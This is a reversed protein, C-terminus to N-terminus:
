CSAAASQLLTAEPTTARAAHLFTEFGVRPAMGALFGGLADLATRTFGKPHLLASFRMDATGAHQRLWTEAAALLLPAPLPLILPTWGRLGYDLRRALRGALSGQQASEDAADRSHGEGGLLTGKPQRFFRAQALGAAPGLNAAAVPIELLGAHAPALVGTEPAVRWNALRPAATFDVAQRGTSKRMGPVVSSDIGIGARALGKLIAGDHPQIAYGGARFAVVPYAADRLATRLWGIGQRALVETRAAVAAADLGHAALRYAEAPFHWANGELRAELWHPHLHLQADHGRAVARRLQDEVADVFRHQGAQRAAIMGLVDVFLTARASFAECAALIAETPPLLVAEPDDNHTFWVEYDLSVLLRATV